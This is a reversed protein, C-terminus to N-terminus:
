AAEIRGLLGLGPKIMKGAEAELRAWAVTGGIGLTRDEDYLEGMKAESYCRSERWM